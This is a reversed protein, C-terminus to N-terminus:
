SIIKLEKAKSIAQTRRSVDLKVYVNAVHTKVTNVSVFLKDAIEQNTHGEVLKELVDIERESLELSAAADRDFAPRDKQEVIVPRKRLRTGLYIGLALFAVGIAGLYIEMSLRFAFFSYEMLKLSLLSFAVVGGYILVKKWM